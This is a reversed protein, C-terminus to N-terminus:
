VFSQHSDKMHGGYPKEAFSSCVFLPKIAINSFWFM